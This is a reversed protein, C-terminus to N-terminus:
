KDSSKPAKELKDIVRDVVEEVHGAAESKYADKQVSLVHKRRKLADIVVVVEQGTLTVTYNM